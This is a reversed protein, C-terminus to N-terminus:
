GRRTRAATASGPAREAVVQAVLMGGTPGDAPLLRHLDTDWGVVSPVAGSPTTASVDLRSSTGLGSLQLSVAKLGALSLLTDLTNAASIRMELGEVRPVFHRHNRQSGS